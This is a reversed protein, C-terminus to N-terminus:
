DSSPVVFFQLVSATLFIWIGANLSLLRACLDALEPWQRPQVLWVVFPSPLWQDIFPYLPMHPWMGSNLWRSLQFGWVCSAVFFGFARLM